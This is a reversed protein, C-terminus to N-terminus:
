RELMRGFNQLEPILGECHLIAMPDGAIAAEALEVTDVDENDAGLQRLEELELDSVPRFIFKYM